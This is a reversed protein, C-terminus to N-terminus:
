RRHEAARESEHWRAHLRREEERRAKKLVEERAEEQDPRLAEQGTSRLPRAQAERDKRCAKLAKALKQKRTLKKAPPKPTIAGLM